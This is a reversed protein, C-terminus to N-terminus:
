VRCGSFPSGKDVKLTMLILHSLLHSSVPGPSPCEHGRVPHPLISLVANTEVRGEGGWLPCGEMM